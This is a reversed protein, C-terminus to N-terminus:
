GEEPLRGTFWDRVLQTEPVGQVILAASIDDVMASPGSLYILHKEPEPLHAATLHEDTLYQVTFEAHSKQWADFEGGFLIGEAPARYILTVPIPLNDHVRQKLIAHFPTVGVGGAVFLLPADSDRWIFIGELGYAQVSDGKQLKALSNKYSSGSLRTTISIVGEHPPSSITFRHELPGYPGPVEIKISQGAVWSLPEEPTFSFTQIGEVEQKASEFRLQM